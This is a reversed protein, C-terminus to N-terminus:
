KVTPLECPLGPSTASTSRTSLLSPADDNRTSVARFPREISARFDHNVAITSSIHSSNLTGSYPTQRADGGTVLGSKEVPSITINCGFLPMARERRGNKINPLLMIWHHIVNINIAISLHGPPRIGDEGSRRADRRSTVRSAVRVFQENSTLRTIRTIGGEYRNGVLPHTYRVTLKNIYGVTFALITVRRANRVPAVVAASAPSLPHM